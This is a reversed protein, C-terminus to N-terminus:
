RRPASRANPVSAPKFRAAPREKSPQRQDAPKRKRAAEDLKIGKDIFTEVADVSQCGVLRRLRWGDSSKRFMLLQPVPGGRTLRRGLAKEHDLNVIAFVVRRLVGTQRVQPLVIQKMEQCAPCWDAGVMVVLPRGTETTVRRAEAYTESGTATFSAQLILALSLGTM